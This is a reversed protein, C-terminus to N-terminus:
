LFKKMSEFREVLITKRMAYDAYVIEVFVYFVFVSLTAGDILGRDM